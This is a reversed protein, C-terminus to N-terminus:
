RDVCRQFSSVSNSDGYLTFFIGYARDLTYIDCVPLNQRIKLFQINRIYLYQIKSTRGLTNFVPVPIGYRPGTQHILYGYTRDLKNLIRNWLILGM